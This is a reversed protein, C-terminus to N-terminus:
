NVAVAGFYFLLDRPLVKGYFLAHNLDLQIPRMM